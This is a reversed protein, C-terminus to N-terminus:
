VCDNKPRAEVNTSGSPCSSLSPQGHWIWNKYSQAVGNFYLHARITKVTKRKTNGCKSCPRWWFNPYSANTTAFRLFMEVREEYELSRRNAEMWSKDMPTITLWKM